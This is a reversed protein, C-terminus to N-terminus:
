HNDLLLRISEIDMLLDLRECDMAKLNNNILMNFREVYQYLQIKPPLICIKIEIKPILTELSKTSGHPFVM